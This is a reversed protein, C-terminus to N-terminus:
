DHEKTSTHRQYHETKKELQLRCVHHGRSQLESTHEESRRSDSPPGSGSKVASCYSARMCRWSTKRVTCAAMLSRSNRGSRTRITLISPKSSGSLETGHGPSALSESHSIM